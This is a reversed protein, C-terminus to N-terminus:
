SCFCSGQLTGREVCLNLIAVGKEELEFPSGKLLRTTLREEEDREKIVLDILHNIFIDAM